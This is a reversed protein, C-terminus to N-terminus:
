EIKTVNSTVPLNAQEPTAPWSKNQKLFVMKRDIEPLYGPYGRTSAIYHAEALDQQALIFEGTNAKIMALDILNSITHQNDKQQRSINNSQLLYWKAESFKNQLLYLHALDSFNYSADTNMHYRMSHQAKQIAFYIAADYVFESRDLQVKSIKVNTNIKAVPIRAISHDKLQELMPPREHKKLLKLDIRYWQASASFSLLCFIVPILFKM